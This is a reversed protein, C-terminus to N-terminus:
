IIIRELVFCTEKFTADFLNTYPDIIHFWWNSDLKSSIMQFMHSCTEVYSFLRCNTISCSSKRLKKSQKLFRLIADSDPRLVRCYEFYM